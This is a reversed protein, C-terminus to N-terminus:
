GIGSAPSVTAQALKHECACAAVSRSQLLWKENCSAYRGLHQSLRESLSKTLVAPRAPLATPQEPAGQRSRVLLLLSTGACFNLAETLSHRAVFQADGIFLQINCFVVALTAATTPCQVGAVLVATMCLAVVWAMSSGSRKSHGFHLGHQLLEREEAASVCRVTMNVAHSVKALSNSVSGQATNTANGIRMPEGGLGWRKSDDAQLMSRIDALKLLALM